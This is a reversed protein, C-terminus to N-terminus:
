SAKDPQLYTTPRIANSGTTAAAQDQSTECAAQTAAVTPPTQRGGDAQEYARHCHRVAASKCDAGKLADVLACVMCPDAGEVGAKVGERSVTWVEPQAQGKIREYEM